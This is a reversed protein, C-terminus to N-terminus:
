KPDGAPAEPAFVAKLDLLLTLDDPAGCVGIVYPRAPSFLLRPVPRLDSMAVRLVESAGDVLIAVWERGVRCIMCKPRLAPPSRPLGLRRRLDIVPILHDRVHIVGEVFPPANPVRTLQPPQIIEDVRRLDVAYQEAGVRFACLQIAQDKELPDEANSKPALRPEIV